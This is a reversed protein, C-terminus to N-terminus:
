CQDTSQTTWGNQLCLISLVHWTSDETCPKHSYLSSNFLETVIHPFSPIQCTHYSLLATCPVFLCVFSIIESHYIHLFLHNVIKRKNSLSPSEMSTAVPPIWFAWFFWGWFSSPISFELYLLCCICFDRLVRSLTFTLASLLAPTLSLFILLLGIM